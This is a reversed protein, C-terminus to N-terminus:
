VYLIESVLKADKRVGKDKDAVIATICWLQGDKIFYEGVGLHSIAEENPVLAPRWITTDVVGIQYGCMKTRRRGQSLDLELKGCLDAALREWDIQDVVIAARGETYCWSPMDEPLERILDFLYEEGTMSDGREEMIVSARINQYDIKLFERLKVSM